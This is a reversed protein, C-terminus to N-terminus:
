CGGLAEFQGEERDDAGIRHDAPHRDDDIGQGPLVIEVLRDDRGMRGGAHDTQHVAAGAQQAGEVAGRHELNLIAEGEQAVDGAESLAQEALGGLLDALSELEAEGRPVTLYEYTWVYSRQDALVDGFFLTVTTILVILSFVTVKM